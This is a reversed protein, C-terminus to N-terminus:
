WIRRELTHGTFDTLSQFILYLTVLTHALMTQTAELIRSYGCYSNQRFDFRDIADSSQLLYLLDM